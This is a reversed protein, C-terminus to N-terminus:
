QPSMHGGRNETVEREKFGSGSESENWYFQVYEYIRWFIINHWAFLQLTKERM